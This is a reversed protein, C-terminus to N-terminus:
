VLLARLTRTVYGPEHAVDDYTFRVVTWGGLQLAVTRRRDRRFATRTGHTEWGDTEIVLRREPWCFDVEMGDVTTNTLPPPLRAADILALFRRELDSRTFSVHPGHENLVRTLRGAGRRGPIPQPTADLRLIEAQELLQKLTRASVVDALDTLTRSVTTVPVGQVTTRDHATLSRPRHVIVGPIRKVARPASVEKFDRWAARLGHLAAAARHSLVAGPGCALVAGLWKGEATLTDHGAAYVGRHLRVLRQSRLRVKIAEDSVGETLLQRRAMVGHQMAALAAIVSDPSRPGKEPHMVGALPGVAGSEGGEAM